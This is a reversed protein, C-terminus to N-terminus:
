SGASFLLLEKYDQFKGIKKKIIQGTENILLTQPVGPGLKQATLSKEDYLNPYTIGHTNVYDQADRIRAEDVAIGVIPIKQENNLKVFYPIEERCPPCWSGWINVLVPGRLQELAAGSNGNLCPLKRGNNVGAAIKISACDVVEGKSPAVNGNTCATLFILAALWFRNSKMKM